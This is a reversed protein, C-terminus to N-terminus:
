AAARVQQDDHVSIIPAKTAPAVLDNISLGNGNEAGNDTAHDNGNGDASQNLQEVIRKKELMRSTVEILHRIFEPWDGSTWFRDAHQMLLQLAKANLESVKLHPYAQNFLHLLVDAGGLKRIEHRQDYAFEFSKKGSSFKQSPILQGWQLQKEEHMHHLVALRDNVDFGSEVLSKFFATWNRLLPIADFDVSGEDIEQQIHTLFSLEKNDASMFVERLANTAENRVEVLNPKNTHTRQYEFLRAVEAYVEDKQSRTLGASHDVQEVPVDPVAGSDKLQEVLMKLLDLKDQVWGGAEGETFHLDLLEAAIRMLNRVRQFRVREYADFFTRFALPGLGVGHNAIAQENYTAAFNVIRFRLTPAGPSVGHLVAALDNASRPPDWYVVCTANPMELNGHKTGTDMTMAIVHVNPRTKFVDINAELQSNKAAVIYSRQVKRITAEEALGVAADGFTALIHAVTDQRRTVVAVKAQGHHQREEEIVDRLLGIKLNEISLDGLVDRLKNEGLVYSKKNAPDARVGLLRTMLSLPMEYTKTEYVIEPMRDAEHPHESSFPKFIKQPDLYVLRENLLDQLGALRQPKLIDSAAKISRRGVTLGTMERIFALVRDLAGLEHQAAPSAVIVVPVRKDTPVFKRVSEALTSDSAGLTQAGTIVVVCLNTRILSVAPHSTRGKELSRLYDQTVFIVHPTTADSEFKKLAKTREATKGTLDLFRTPREYSEFAKIWKNKHLPNVVIVAHGGAPIDMASLGHAMRDVALGAVVLEEGVNVDVMAGTVKKFLKVAAVRQPYSHEIGAKLEPLKFSEVDIWESRIELLIRLADVLAEFNRDFGLATDPEVAKLRGVTENGEIYFYNVHDRNPGLVNNEDMYLRVDARQIEILRDLEAFGRTRDEQFDAMLIREVNEKLKRIVRSRDNETRPVLRDQWFELQVRASTRNLKDEGVYRVTASAIPGFVPGSADISDDVLCFRLDSVAGPKRDTLLVSGSIRWKNDPLAEVEITSPVGGQVILRTWHLFPFANSEVVFDFAVNDAAISFNPADKYGAVSFATIKYAREIKHREDPWAIPAVISGVQQHIEPQGLENRRFLDDCHAALWTLIEARDNRLEANNYLADLIRLMDLGLGQARRLALSAMKKKNLHDIQAESWGLAHAVPKLNGRYFTRWRGVVKDDNFYKDRYNAACNSFAPDHVWKYVVIPEVDYADAVAVLSGKLLQIISRLQDETPRQQRVKLAVDELKSDLLGQSIEDVTLGCKLAMEKVRGRCVPDNILFNTIWGRVDKVNAGRLTAIANANAKTQMLLALMDKNGPQLVRALALEPDNLFFKIAPKGFDPDTEWPLINHGDRNYRDEVYERLWRHAKKTSVGKGRLVAFKDADFESAKALAVLDRAGPAEYRLSELNPETRFIEQAEAAHGGCEDNTWTTVNPNKRYINRVFDTFWTHATGAAVHRHKGIEEANFGFVGILAAITEHGPYESRLGEFRHDETYLGYLEHLDQASYDLGYDIAVAPWDSENPGAFMALAQIDESIKEPLVRDTIKSEPQKKKKKEPDQDKKYDHQTTHLSPAAPSLIPAFGVVPLSKNDAGAIKVVTTKAFLAQAEAVDAHMGYRQLLPDLKAALKDGLAVLAGDDVHGMAHLMSEASSTGAVVGGLMENLIQAVSGIQKAFTHISQDEKHVVHHLLVLSWIVLSYGLLSKNQGLSPILFYSLAFNAQADDIGALGHRGTSLSYFAEDYFRRKELSSMKETADKLLVGALIFSVAALRNDPKVPLEKIKRHYEDREIPIQDTSIIILHLASNLTANVAVGTELNSVYCVPRGAFHGAAYAVPLYLFHPVGARKEGLPVLIHARDLLHNENLWRAAFSALLFRNQKTQPMWVACAKGLEKDLWRLKKREGSPFTNIAPGFVEFPQDANEFLRNIAGHLLVPLQQYPSQLANSIQTRVRTLVALVTEDDNKSAFATGVKIVLRDSGHEDTIYAVQNKESAKDEKKAIDVDVDGVTAIDNLLFSLEDVIRMTVGQSHVQSRSVTELEPASRSAAAMAYIRTPPTPAPIDRENVIQLHVKVITPSLPAFAAVVAPWASFGIKPLHGIEALKLAAAQTMRRLPNEKSAELARTVEAPGDRRIDVKIGFADAFAAYIRELGLIFEPSTYGRVQDFARNKELAWLTPLALVINSPIACLAAAPLVAWHHLYRNHAQQLWWVFLYNLFYFQQLAVLYVTAANDVVLGRETAWRTAIAIVEPDSQFDRIFKAASKRDAVVYSPAPRLDVVFVGYSLTNALADPLDVLFTRLSFNDVTTSPLEDGVIAGVAFRENPIDISGNTDIGVLLERRPILWLENITALLVRFSYIAQYGDAERGSWWNIARRLLTLTRQWQVKDWPSMLTEDMPLLNELPQITNNAAVMRLSDLLAPLFENESALQRAPDPKPHSAMLVMQEYARQLRPFYVRETTTVLRALEEESPLEQRYYDLIAEKVVMAFAPPNRRFHEELVDIANGKGDWDPWMIRLLPEAFLYDRPLISRMNNLGDLLLALNFKRPQSFVHFLVRAAVTWLSPDGIAASKLVGSDKLVAGRWNGTRLYPHMQLIAEMDSSNGYADNIVADPDYDEFGSTNKLTDIYPSRNTRMKRLFENRLGSVAIISHARYRNTLTSGIQLSGLDVEYLRIKRGLPTVIEKWRSLRFMNTPGDVSFGRPYCIQEELDDFVNALIRDVDLTPLAATWESLHFDPYHENVGADKLAQELDPMKKATHQKLYNELTTVIARYRKLHQQIAANDIQIDHWASQTSTERSRSTDQKDSEGFVSAWTTALEESTKGVLDSIRVPLLKSAGALAMQPGRPPFWVVMITLVLVAAALLVVCSIQALTAGDITLVLRRGVAFAFLTVVGVVASRKVWDLHLMNEDRSIRFRASLWGTREIQGAIATSDSHLVRLKVEIPQRFSRMIREFLQSAQVFSLRRSFVAQAMLLMGAEVNQETTAVREALFLREGHFLKELPTQERLFANLYSASIDPKSVRPVFAVVEYGADRLVADIGDAHFGGTVLVFTGRVAHKTRQIEELFKEAMANDRSEAQRYFDEFSSLNAESRKRLLGCSTRQVKQWEKWEERSLSFDVLKRLLYLRRHVALMKHERQSKCLAAYTSKKASEIDSMLQRIDIGQASRRYNIYALAMARDKTVGDLPLVTELYVGKLFNNLLPTLPARARQLVRVFQAASMHGNDYTSVAADFERMKRNFTLRKQIELKAQQARVEAQLVCKHRSAILFARRNREYLASNDIGIFPIDPSGVFAAHLPGAIKQDTLLSDAVIARDHQNSHKRFPKTEVESFAGEIGVFGVNSHTFLYQLARSINAQAEAQRHIDQIHVVIGKAPKARLAPFVNRVIGMENPVTIRSNVAELPLRHAWVVNTAFMVM